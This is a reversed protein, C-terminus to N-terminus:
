CTEAHAKQLVALQATVVALEISLRNALNWLRHADSGNFPEDTMGKSMIQRLFTADEESLGKPELPEFACGGDHATCYAREDPSLTPGHLGVTPYGAGFGDRRVRIIHAPGEKPGIWARRETM